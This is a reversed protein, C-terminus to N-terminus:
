RSPGCGMGDAFQEPDRLRDIYGGGIWDARRDAAVQHKQAPRDEGNQIPHLPERWQELRMLQYGVHAADFYGDGFARLREVAGRALGAKEGPVGHSAFFYAAGGMRVGLEKEWATQSKVSNALWGRAASHRLQTSRKPQRVM